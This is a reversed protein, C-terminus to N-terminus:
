TRPSRTMLLNDVLERQGAAVSPLVTLTWAMAPSCVSVPFVDRAEGSGLFINITTKGVQEHNGYYTWQLMTHARLFVTSLEISSRDTFNNDTHEDDM